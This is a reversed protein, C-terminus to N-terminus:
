FRIIPIAACRCNYDQGPNNYRAPQGPETTLPPDDWSFTKGDLIKHSPRVPHMKSGAVTRWKYKTIGASAYRTEKFKAMLLNTEQRALFKAKNATVGYSAQLYGVIAERRNGAVLSQRVDKRLRVIEDKTFNNIWLDMNNSWEGAIRKQEEPTLKPTVIMGKVSAQVQRDADELSSGFLDDTRIKGAFEASDFTSLKKDIRNIREQYRVDAVAIAERYEPPLETAPLKFTSTKPDWKAGLKRLEKTTTADLQGSFKGRAFTLKGSSLAKILGDKANKITNRPLDLEALLPDYFYKKFAAKIRKEMEEFDSSSVVVPKLEITKV